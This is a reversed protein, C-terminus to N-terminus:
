DAGNRKDPIDSAAENSVSRSLLPVGQTGLPVHSFSAPPCDRHHCALGTRVHAFVLLHHPQEQDQHSSTEAQRMERVHGPLIVERLAASVRPPQGREPRSFRSKDLNTLSKPLQNVGCTCM